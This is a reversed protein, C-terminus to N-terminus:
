RPLVREYIMDEVITVKRGMEGTVGPERNDLVARTFDDILPQHVNAHPPYKEVREGDRTKITMTGENLVPVHISGKCGFVDLTDQPEFAAHSSTLVATTGTEFLFHAIATDEVKREYLVNSLFGKAEKIHGLINTFVEIRHCGMDMMPGGGSKEKQLLWYRPEGPRRNFPEFNNIQAHAIIGIKGSKIIERIRSVAPYFHRYYAIGLKVGNSECADIMSDCEGTNMGMPKECLVHKGAKAAAITMEAHLYVPTAIYVAKIEDDEIIERWDKTWKRAGFQRAFAEAKAYNARNISVLDCNDLDRLAPAVRKGSIDGCGILGWKLKKM